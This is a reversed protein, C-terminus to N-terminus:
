VLSTVDVSRLKVHRAVCTVIDWVCPSSVWVWLSIWWVMATTIGIWVYTSDWKNEWDRCTDCCFRRHYPGNIGCFEPLRGFYHGQVWSECQPMETQCNTSRELHELQGRQDLASIIFDFCRILLNVFFSLITQKSSALLLLLINYIQM